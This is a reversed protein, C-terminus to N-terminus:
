YIIKQEHEAFRKECLTKLNTVNRLQETINKEVMELRETKNKEM